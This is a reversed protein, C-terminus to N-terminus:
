EKIKIQGKMVLHLSCYYSVSEEVTMSWSVGSQITSSTWKEDIEETVDHDFIDMNVFTIKDGISAEILNPIFKMQKIEVIHTKSRPKLPINTPKPADTTSTLESGGSSSCGLNFVLLVVVLLYRLLQQFRILISLKYITNM